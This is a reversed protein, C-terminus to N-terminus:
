ARAHQLELAVLRAIMLVPYLMGAMGEFIVAARVLPAEAVIDGYGLTTMTVFSFYIFEAFARPSSEIVEPGGFSGPELLWASHYILAWLLGMILYVVLSGQIRYKNVPGIKYIHRLVMWALLGLFLFTIANSFVEIWVVSATFSVIRLIFAAVALTIFFGLHRWKTFVAFIGSLLILNFLIDRIVFEWWRMGSLPIWTLISLTLYILLASLSREHTWFERNKHILNIVPAM